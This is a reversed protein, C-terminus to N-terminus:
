FLFDEDILDTDNFIVHQENELHMELRMIAPFLSDISFSYFHWIGKITSVYRCDLHEQIEDKVKAESLIFSTVNNTPCDPNISAEAKDTGKYIYKYLYKCIYLKFLLKSILM